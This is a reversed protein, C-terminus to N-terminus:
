WSLARLSAGVDRPNVAHMVVGDEPTPREPATVLVLLQVGLGRLRQVLRRREEDMRLLVLICGSLAQAHELVHAALLDFTHGRCPEVAALERLLDLTRGLGRGVTLRYARDEVFVLDLLADHIQLGSVFSATVSVAAEFEVDSGADGFTDLVLSYRTFYEDQFEKVVPKGAKAFSPWHIHRLPDGPRYDRLQIFEQSDGVDHSLAVGGRQLRRAGPLTLPPMPYCRPLVVLEGALDIATAANVLGLPDPRLLRCREFRLVGRRLPMASLTVEVSRGAPLDVLDTDEIDAGRGRRVLELWRPFGIRRDVWNVQPDRAGRAHRFTQADPFREALEDRLRVRAIKRPGRNHVRHRYSFVEGVTVYQPLHREFTLKPRFRLSGLSAIALLGIALGFMQYAVTRRTDVGFVTVAVLVYLLALGAPTFRRRTWQSFRYVRIFARLLRGM